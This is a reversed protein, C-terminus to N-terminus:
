KIITWYWGNLGSACCLSSFLSVRWFASGLRFAWVYSEVVLTGIIPDRSALVADNIHPLETSSPVSGELQRRSANNIVTGIIGVGLVGGLNPTASTFATVTPLQEAPLGAQAIVMTVLTGSGFSLGCLLSYGVIQGIPSTENLTSMLGMGVPLVALSGM